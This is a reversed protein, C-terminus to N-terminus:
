AFAEGLVVEDDAAPLRGERLFVRNLGPEGAGPLSVIQASVAEDYGDIELNAFGIVRPEAERVGPIARVTEALSLPARKLGAFADAFRYEGYYLARTQSLAHYNSQAMVLTAIGAAMVAGIALVQGRLQAFERLLKRRLVSM